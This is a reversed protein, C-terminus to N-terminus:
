RGHVDTSLVAVMLLYASSYLLHLPHIMVQVRFPRICDIIFQKANLPALDLTIMDNELKDYLLLDSLINMAVNCSGHCDQIFDYLESPEEGSDSLLCQLGLVATSLPSRVEHLIYRM